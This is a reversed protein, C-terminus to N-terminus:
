KSEKYDPEDAYRAADYRPRDSPNYNFQINGGYQAQLMAERNNLYHEGETLAKKRNVNQYEEPSYMPTISRDSKQLGTAIFARGNDAEAKLILGPLGRFKWPGFPVPIDPTFWATWRRGHYDTTAMLCYYGLINTTSDVMEWQMEDLAEDYYGRNDGFKSYYRLSNDALSTFVYTNVKKVPGKRMDVSISGDPHRTVCTAMIIQNLEEKGKPTSMLSDNWLSIDNFYKAQTTNALLSMRTTKLSDSEWDRSSSDYSVHIDATQQASAGFVAACMILSSVLTKM